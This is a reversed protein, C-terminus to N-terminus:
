VTGSLNLDGKVVVAGAAISTGGTKTLVVRIYRKLDGKYSVSYVSNEALAAPLTGILRDSAITEGDSLDAADGMVITPVFVGASVIAGTNIIARFSNCDILDVIAGDSKTANYVAPVIAQVDTYKTKLDM